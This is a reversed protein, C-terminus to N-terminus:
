VASHTIFERTNGLSTLAPALDRRGSAKMQGIATDLMSLVGRLANKTDSDVNAIILVQKTLKQFDDASQTVARAHCGQLRTLNFAAIKLENVGM